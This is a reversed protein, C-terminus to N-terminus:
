AGRAEVRHDRRNGAKWTAIVMTAELGEVFGFGLSLVLLWRAEWIGAAGVGTLTLGLVVLRWGEARGLSGARPRLLGQKGGKGGLLGRGFVALGLLVAAYPVYDSLSDASFLANM